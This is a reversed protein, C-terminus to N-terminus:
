KILLYDNVAKLLEEKPLFGMMVKPEGSASIFLLTPLGSIGLRQALAKEKMTDVKYVDIRGSFEKAVEEVLPSLQRCPACWDAYFDIIVPKTGKYKWETSEEYNFVLKKFTDNTMQDVVSESTEKSGVSARNESRCTIFILSAIILAFLIKKKM